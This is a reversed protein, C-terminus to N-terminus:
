PVEFAQIQKHFKMEIPLKFTKSDAFRLRLM